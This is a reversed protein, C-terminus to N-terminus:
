GTHPTTPFIHPLSIESHRPYAPSLAPPPAGPPMAAHTTQRRTSQTHEHAAQVPKHHRQSDAPTGPALPKAQASHTAEQLPRQECPCQQATLPSHQRVGQAPRGRPRPTSDIHHLRHHHRTRAEKPTQRRTIHQLHLLHSHPQQHRRNRRQEMSHHPRNNRRKTQTPQRLRTPRQLTQRQSTPLSSPMSLQHTRQTTSPTPSQRQQTQVPHHRHTLYGHIGM